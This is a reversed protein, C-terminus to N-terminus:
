GKLQHIEYSLFMIEPCVRMCVCALIALELLSLARTQREVTLATTSFGLAALPPPAAATLPPTQNCAQWLKHRCAVYASVVRGPGTYRTIHFPNGQSTKTLPDTYARHHSIPRGQTNKHTARHIGQPTLRSARHHM